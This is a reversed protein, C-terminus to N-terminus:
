PAAPAIAAIESEAPIAAIETILKKLVAEAFAEFTEAVISFANPGGIVNNLYYQDLNPELALIPLGNITVGARVADDRAEAAPRGRNNAGDGSVDIVRRATEVAWRATEAGLEAPIM